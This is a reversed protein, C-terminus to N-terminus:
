DEPWIDVLELPEPRSDLVCSTRYFAARRVYISAANEISLMEEPRLERSVRAPSGLLLVGGPFVKREPVVAGAGIITNSAIQAGNLVVAGIGVLVGSAIQCGHLVAAHGVTVSDGINIPWGEDVHLIAGDQINSCRGITITDADARVIASFWISSQTRLIVNGVVTANPAIYTDTSVAPRVKSLSYISM